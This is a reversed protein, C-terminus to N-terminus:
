HLASEDDPIDLGNNSSPARPRPAPKPAPKAPPRPAPKIAPRPRAAPKPPAPPKPPVHATLQIEVVGASPLLEAVGVATWAPYPPKFYEDKVEAFARFQADKDGEFNASNWVHFTELRAVDAFTLGAAKLAADLYAFARRAQAKFAAADRAEGPRPGIVVGSFYVVDGVRRVPAFKLESWATEDRPGVLVVEGGPAPIRRVDPGAPASPAAGPAPAEASPASAALAAAATMAIWAATM